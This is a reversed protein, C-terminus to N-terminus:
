KQLALKYGSLRAQKLWYDAQEREDGQESHRYIRYLMYQSHAHGQKAAKGYWQAALTWDQAGGLGLYYLEGLLTQSNADGWRAARHCWDFAQAFNIRRLKDGYRYAYCNEAAVDAESDLGVHACAQLSLAVVMVALRTM